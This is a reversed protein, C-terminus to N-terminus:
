LAPSFAGGEGERKGETKRGKFLFPTPHYLGGVQPRPCLGLRWVNEQVPEYQGECCFVSCDKVRIQNSIISGKTQSSSAGVLVLYFCSSHRYSIIQSWNRIWFGFTSTTTNINVTLLYTLSKNICGDASFYLMDFSIFLCDIIIVYCHFCELCLIVITCYMFCAYKKVICYPILDRGYRTKKCKPASFPYTPRLTTTTSTENAMFM